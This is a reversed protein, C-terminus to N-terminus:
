GNSSYGTLTGGRELTNKQEEVFGIVVGNEILVAKQETEFRRICEEITITKNEM